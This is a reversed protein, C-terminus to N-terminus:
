NSKRQFPPTVLVFSCSSVIWVTAYEICDDDQINQANERPADTPATGNAQDAQQAEKDDSKVTHSHSNKGGSSSAVHQEGSTSPMKEGHRNNAADQGRAQSSEDSSSEISIVEKDASPKRGQREETAAPRSADADNLAEPNGSETAMAAKTQVQPAAGPPIVGRMLPRHLELALDPEIGYEVVMEGLPPLLAGYEGSPLAGRLFEAYQVTTEHCKDLQEAVLKLHTAGPQVAILRRQQALL